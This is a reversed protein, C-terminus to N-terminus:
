VPTSLAQRDDAIHEAQVSLVPHLRYLLTVSVACEVNSIRPKGGHDDDLDLVDRAPVIGTPPHALFRQDLVKRLVRESQEAVDAILVAFLSDAGLQPIV